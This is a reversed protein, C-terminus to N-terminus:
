TWLGGLGGSIPASGRSELLENVKYAPSGDIDLPPPPEQNEANPDGDPHVPKLFSVHFSPSILYNTSLELQYM